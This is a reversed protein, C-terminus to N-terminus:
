ASTVPPERSGDTASGDGHRRSWACRHVSCRGRGVCAASLTSTKWSRSTAFVALAEFARRDVFLAQDGYPLGLCAVRLAVGREIVRACVSGSDLGFRYCGAVAGSREAEDIADRWAGPLQTDAHLFLLWGGRARAAGANMQRARGRPADLWVVAPYSSRVSALSLDGATAAVIVEADTWDAAELTRALAEADRYVPIVVTVSAM